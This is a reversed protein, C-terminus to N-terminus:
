NVRLTAQVSNEVYKIGNPEFALNVALSSSFLNSPLRFLEIKTGEIADSIRRHFARLITNFLVELLSEIPNLLAPFDLDISINDVGTLTIIVRNGSISLSNSITLDVEPSPINIYKWGLIPVRIGGKLGSISITIKVRGVGGVIDFKINKARITGKIKAGFGGVTGSKEFNQSIEPILNRALVQIADDSITAIIRNSPATSLLTLDAISPRVANAIGSIGVLNFGAEFSPGDAIVAGESANVSFGSGFLNNLQPLPIGRLTNRLPPIVSNNIISVVVADLPGSGVNIMSLHTVSLVGGSISIRGNAQMPIDQDFGGIPLNVRVKVTLGIEVNHTTLNAVFRGVPPNVVEYSYDIGAAQGHGRFQNTASAHVKKLILNLLKDGCYAMMPKM